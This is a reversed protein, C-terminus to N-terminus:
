LGNAMLHTEIRLAVEPCHRPLVGLDRLLVDYHLREVPAKPYRRAYRIYRRAAREIAGRTKPISPEINPAGDLITRYLYRDTANM